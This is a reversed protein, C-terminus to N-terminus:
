VRVRRPTTFRLLVWYSIGLFGAMCGMPVLKLFWWRTSIKMAGALVIPWLPPLIAVPEGNFAYGKGLVLHRVPRPLSRRRGLSGVPRKAFSPFSALLRITHLLVM